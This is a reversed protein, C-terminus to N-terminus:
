RGPSLVRGPRLGVYLGAGVILATGAWTYGDPLDGFLLYGVAVSGVMQWYHFPSVFNAPAYMLARAVCYHGAAGLAGLSCLLLVDRFHEPTRWFWPLLFSLFVSGVLASYVVSTEPKDVGAVLRTLLQYLAYCTASGLVFLSAWQFVESGPRIVVIVGCFGFLVAIVRGISVREGLVPGALLVVILPAVFSISAAQAVSIFKLASFFLFTSTLLMLSRALQVAPRRTALLGLGYRPMLVALVLLLHSLTRAWVVQESSYSESMLKALGNMVPFISGALCMFGIGLLPRGALSDDPPAQMGAGAPSHEQGPERMRPRM